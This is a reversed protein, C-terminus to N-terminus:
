GKLGLSRMLLDAEEKSMDDPDGKHKPITILEVQKALPAVVRSLAKASAIGSKDQDFFIFLHNLEMKSLEVLQKGSLQTGFSCIAGKGLRWADFVGEVLIAKGGKPITDFNYILDKPRTHCESLSAHLYRVDAYGSVDRSTFSVMTGNVFIPIIIRFAYNDASNYVAKIQYKRILQRYDFRRKKLYDRHLKPFVRTIDPPLRVFSDSGVSKLHKIRLDEDKQKTITGTPELRKFIEKAEKYSVSAAEKIVSILNKRGCKWCNATLDSLRIGLHNTEDGCFRCQINIWGTSVNKGSEWYEINYDELFEKLEM